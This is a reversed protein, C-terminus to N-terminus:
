PCAPGVESNASEVIAIANRLRAPDLSLLEDASTMEIREILAQIQGGRLRNDEWADLMEVLTRGAM